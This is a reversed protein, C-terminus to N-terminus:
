VALGLALTEEHAHMVVFALSTIRATFCSLSGWDGIPIDNLQCSWM